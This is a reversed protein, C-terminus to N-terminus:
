LHAYVTGYYSSNVSLIRNGTKKTIEACACVNSVLGSKGGGGERGPYSAVCNCAREGSVRNSLGKTGHLLIGLGLLLIIVICTYM